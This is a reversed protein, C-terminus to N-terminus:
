KGMERQENTFLLAYNHFKYPQPIYLKLGKKKMSLLQGKM